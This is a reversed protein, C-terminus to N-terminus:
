NPDGFPHCSLIRRFGAWSGLVVGRNRIASITFESCSPFHRCHGQIGFLIRVGPFFGRYIRVMLILLDSLLSQLLSVTNRM